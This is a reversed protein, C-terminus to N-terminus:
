RSAATNGKQECLVTRPSFLELSWGLPQYPEPLLVWLHQSSWSVQARNWAAGRVQERVKM